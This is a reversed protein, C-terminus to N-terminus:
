LRSMRVVAREDFPELKFFSRSGRIQTTSYGNEGTDNPLARYAGFAMRWAPKTVRLAPGRVTISRYWCKDLSGVFDGMAIERGRAGRLSPQMRLIIAAELWAASACRGLRRSWAQADSCRNASGGVGSFGAEFENPAHSQDAIRPQHNLKENTLLSQSQRNPPPIGAAARLM